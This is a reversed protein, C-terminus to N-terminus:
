LSQIRRLVHLTTSQLFDSPRMILLHSTFILVNLHQLSGHRMNESPSNKVIFSASEVVQDGLRPACHLEYCPLTAKIDALVHNDRHDDTLWAETIALIDLKESIVLDCVHTTKNKMSRTNWLAFRTCLKHSANPARHIQRLNSLNVKRVTQDYDTINKTNVYRTSNVITHIRQNKGGRRGRKRWRSRIRGAKKCSSPHCHLDHGHCSNSLINLSNLKNILDPSINCELGPVCGSRYLLLFDTSMVDASQYKCVDVLRKFKGPVTVYYYYDNSTQTTIAHLIFSLSTCSLLLFLKLICSFYLKFCYRVQVIMEPLM